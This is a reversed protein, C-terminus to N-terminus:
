PLSWDRGHSHTLHVVLRPSDAGHRKFPVRRTLPTVPRHSCNQQQCCTDGPHESSHMAQETLRGAKARRIQGRMTKLCSYIGAAGTDRTSYAERETSLDSSQVCPYPALRGTGCRDLSSAHSRAIVAASAPYRVTLAPM